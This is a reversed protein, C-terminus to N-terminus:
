SEMIENFVQYMNDVYKDITFRNKAKEFGKAGMAEIEEPNELCYRMQQALDVAGNSYLFGDIGHDILEPTAGSVLGIVPKRYAMAEVTVRGMAENESCMLVVDSREFSAKPDPLYGAFEVQSDLNQQKSYSRLQQEYHKRGSGVILLRAKPFAEALQQFAQLAVLQNKKPHLMGILLFTFTDKRKEVTEPQNAELQASSLVGNFILKNPINRDGVIEHRVAESIVIAAAAKDLWKYFHGIGPFFRMNYHLHVLERIHWVHPVGLAESLYAGMSLVSSNTHIIDPQFGKAEAVLQSFIAKNKVYRYPLLWYGPFLFTDASNQYGLVRMPIDQDRLAQAYPGEKPCWAMVEVGREKLGQILSLLSRNAGLMAGYHSLFLIRM